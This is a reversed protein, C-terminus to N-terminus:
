IHQEGIDTDTDFDPQTIDDGLKEKLERYKKESLIYVKYDNDDLDTLTYFKANPSVFENVTYIKDNEDDFVDESKPLSRLTFEAEYEVGDRNLWTGENVDYIGYL